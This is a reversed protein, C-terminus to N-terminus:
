RSLGSLVAVIFSILPSGIIIIGIEILYLSTLFSFFCFNMVVVLLAVMFGTLLMNKTITSFLKKYGSLVYLLVLQEIDEKLADEKQENGRKEINYKLDGFYDSTIEEPKRTYKKRKMFNHISYHYYWPSEAVVRYPFDYNTHYFYVIVCVFATTILVLAPSFLFLVVISFLNSDNLIYNAGFALVALGFGLMSVSFTFHRTRVGEYYDVRDVEYEIMRGVREIRFNDAEDVTVKM